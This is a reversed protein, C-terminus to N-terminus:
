LERVADLFGVKAVSALEFIVGGVLDDGLEFGVVVGALAARRRQEFVVGVLLVRIGGPWRGPLKRRRGPKKWSGM